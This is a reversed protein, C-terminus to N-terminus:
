IDFSSQSSLFNLAFENEESIFWLLPFYPIANKGTGREREKYSKSELSTLPFCVFTVIM